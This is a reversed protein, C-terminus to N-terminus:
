DCVREDVYTMGPVYRTQCIPIFSGSSQVCNYHEYRSTDVLRREIRCNQQSGTTGTETVVGSEDGSAATEGSSGASDNSGNQYALARALREETLVFNQTRISEAWDHLAAMPPANVAVDQPSVAFMLQIGESVPYGIVEVRAAGGDLAVIHTSTLIPSPGILKTINQVPSSSSVPGFSNAVIDPIEASFSEEFNGDNGAVLPVIFSIRGETYAPSQVLWGQPTASATWGPPPYFFEPNQARSAQPASASLVVSLLLACISTRPSTCLSM